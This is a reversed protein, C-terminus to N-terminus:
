IPETVFTNVPRSSASMTSRPSTFTSSGADFYRGAPTLIGSRPRGIVKIQRFV